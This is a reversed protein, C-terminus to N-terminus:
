TLYYPIQMVEPVIEVTDVGERSEVSEPIPPTGLSEEGPTQLSYLLHRFQEQPLSFEKPLSM